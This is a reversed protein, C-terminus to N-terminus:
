ASPGTHWALPFRRGLPEAEELTGSLLADRHLVQRRRLPAACLAPGSGHGPELTDRTDVAARGTRMGRNEARAGSGRRGLRGHISCETLLDRKDARRAPGAEFGLAGAGHVAWPEGDRRRVDGTGVALQDVAREGAGVGPAAPTFIRDEVTDRDEDGVEVVVEAVLARRDKAPAIQRGPGVLEKIQREVVRVGFLAAGSDEVGVTGGIRRRRM